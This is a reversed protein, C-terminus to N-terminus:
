AKCCNERAADSWSGSTQLVNLKDEDTELSLDQNSQQKKEGPQTDEPQIETTERPSSQESRNLEDNRAATATQMVSIPQDIKEAVCPPVQSGPSQQGNRSALLQALRPDIKGPSGPQSLQIGKLTMIQALSPNGEVHSPQQHSSQRSQLIEPKTSCQAKLLGDIQSIDQPHQFNGTGVAHMLRPDINHPLATGPTVLSPPVTNSSNFKESDAASLVQKTDSDIASAANVNKPDDIRPMNGADIMAQAQRAGVIGSPNGAATVHAPKQDVIKSLDEASMKPSQNVNVMAPSGPGVGTDQAQQPSDMKSSGGSTSTSQPQRPDVMRPGGAAAMVQVQRPDVMGAPSGGVAMSQALRPDMMRQMGLGQAQRPDMLRPPGVGAAMAQAQRPDMMRPPGGGAAMTQAQRAAMAQAQRPDMMGPPIGGAAMAQAYRPDMMRPDMMRPSGAGAAMAQAQRAAMAQAQRPDMMGPPVGGAAMAQAQRPDMMRPPGGGAAMAQAQRPDMMRPPGGGAAMAQAQRPDMMRPPAAGAAMAQAQRPDMMRPPGAGAAMAQAQRPDVMRPPGGSAPMPQGQGPIPMQQHPQSPVQQPKMQQQVPASSPPPLNYPQKSHCYCKDDFLFCKIDHGAYKAQYVNEPPLQLPQSSACYCKNDVSYCKPHHGLLPVHM